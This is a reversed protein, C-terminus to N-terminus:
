AKVQISVVYANTCVYGTDYLPGRLEHTVFTVKQPHLVRMCLSLCDKKLADYLVGYTNMEGEMNCERIKKKTLSLRLACLHYKLEIM